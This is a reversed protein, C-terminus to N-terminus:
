RGSADIWRQECLGLIAAGNILDPMPNAAFGSSLAAVLGEGGFNIIDKTVEEVTRHHMLSILKFSDTPTTKELVDILAIMLSPGTDGHEMLYQAHPALIKMVEIADNIRMPQPIEKIYKKVLPGLSKGM